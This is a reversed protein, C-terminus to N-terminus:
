IVQLNEEAMKQPVPSKGENIKKSQCGPKGTKYQDPEIHNVFGAIVPMIRIDFM